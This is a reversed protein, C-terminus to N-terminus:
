DVDLAALEDTLGLLEWRLLAIPVNGNVWIQDHLRQLDLGAGRVRVADAILGILQTKGIQYTLAQGPTEAFFAAEEGATAPDMPVRSVLDSATDTISLTGTALGVDATVRLARLRMFNCLATRTHPADDVMGSVLMMEENYFAIGENAGSDYYHRRVPRANRWALALQQYHAGEHLIGARPDRANAAYFYPLDPGPPPVYSVGDETLRQPGTLEDAVGLFALPELYDPMPRTLYHRLSDPQSLLGRGAYFERVAQEDRAQRRVQQDADVPLAAAPLGRNRTAHLLELWVAREYERRGIDAIEDVTLPVCAVERLFWEYRQRGVPVAPPLDPLRAALWGGFQELAAGAQEAASGLEAAAAPDIRALAQACAAIREGIGDLETIALGAFERAPRALADPAHSLTAPVARLLRVVEAIRSADVGPRLLVDFVPGLAQDIWFRPISRVRLIDSEWTVRAMASRLLRHDVRDPVEDPRVRALDAQFARLETRRRDALDAGVEPLWGAPRDLRPIDDRTRPQQGARWAWFREALEDLERV